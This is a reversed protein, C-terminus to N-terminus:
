ADLSKTGLVVDKFARYATGTMAECDWGFRGGMQRIEEILGGDLMKKIRQEIRKRITEKYLALGLVLTGPRVFDRRGPAQGATEIARIVRRRNALDIHRFAEPNEAALLERLSDDDMAELRARLVPDAEAPFEYNFLIADIYLGSGGVLFPMKGRSWVDDIAAEALTKFAGVSLTEDPDVIDL